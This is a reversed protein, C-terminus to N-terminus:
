TSFRRCHRYESAVGDVDHGHRPCCCFSAVPVGFRPSPRRVPSAKGRSGRHHQFAHCAYSSPRALSFLSLDVVGQVGRYFTLLMFPVGNLSPVNVFRASGGKTPMTSPLSTM